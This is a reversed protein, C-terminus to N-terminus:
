GSSASKWNCEPLGEMLKELGIRKWKIKDKKFLRQEEPSMGKISDCKLKEQALFEDIDPSRVFHQFLQNFLPVAFFARLTNENFKNKAMWYVGFAQEHGYM